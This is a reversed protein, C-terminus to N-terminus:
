IRRALRLLYAKRDLLNNDARPRTPPAGAVPQYSDFDSELVGEGHTLSPLRQQLEHVRVAPIEGELVYSPGRTEQTQPVARLRALASALAGFTDAPIELRFRHIPECVRTGARKLAEMLVLPTLKRFDEGTSSMIKNFGQHSHSQRPAYGTHTMTVTCDTVEWGYLGARLAEIASDEVAKFFAAPMTGLVDGARRFRVGTDPAAPEVRLGVTALFPNTEEGITEVAEGAGLPREVCITTTERFEV